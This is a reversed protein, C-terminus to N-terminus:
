RNRSKCQLSNFLTTADQKANKGSSLIAVFYRNREIVVSGKYSTAFQSLSANPQKLQGEKITIPTSSNCLTKNELRSSSINFNDEEGLFAGDLVQNIDDQNMQADNLTKAVFLLLDPKKKGDNLLAVEAGAIKFGLVGQSGNPFRYDIMNDAFSKAREPKFANNTFKLGLGITGTAILAIASLFVAAIEWLSVPYRANKLQPIQNM